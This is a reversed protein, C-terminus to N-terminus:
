ERMVPKRYVAGFGAQMLIRDEAAHMKQADADTHDDFGFQHLLGHVLYLSLEACLRHGRLAAQRQAQNVNLIIDFRKQTELDDSLDFSIVDTTKPNGFFDRHMRQIQADDVLTIQVVADGASLQSCVSWALEKLPKQIIGRVGSLNTIEIQFSYSRKAM